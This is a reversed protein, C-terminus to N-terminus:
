AFKEDWFIVKKALSNDRIKLTSQLLDNTQHVSDLESKLELNSVQLKNKADNSSKMKAVVETLDKELTMNKAKYEGLQKTLDKIKGEGFEDTNILRDVENQLKEQTSKYKEILSLQYDAESAKTSLDTSLEKNDKKLKEIDIKM